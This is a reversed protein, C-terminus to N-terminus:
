ASSTAGSRLKKLETYIEEADDAGMKSLTRGIAFLRTIPYGNRRGLAHIQAPTFLPDGAEDVIALQLFTARVAPTEEGDKNEQAVFAEFRERDEGSLARLRVTTGWEPVDVDLTARDDTALIAAASKFVRRGSGPEPTVTENDDSM